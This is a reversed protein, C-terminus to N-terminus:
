SKHEQNKHALFAIHTSMIKCVLSIEGVALAVWTLQNGEIHYDTLLIYTGQLLELAEEQLDFLVLEHDWLWVLMELLHVQSRMNSTHYLKLLGCRQLAQLTAVDRM